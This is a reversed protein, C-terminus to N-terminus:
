GTKRQSAAGDIVSRYLGVLKAVSADFDFQRSRERYLQRTADLKAPSSADVTAQQPLQRGSPSGM